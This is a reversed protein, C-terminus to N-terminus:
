KTMVDYSQFTPSFTEIDAVFVFRSDLTWENM